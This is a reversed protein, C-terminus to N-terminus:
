HLSANSKETVIRGSGDVGLQITKFQYRKGMEWYMNHSRALITGLLFVASAVGLRPLNDSAFVPEKHIASNFVNLFIFAGSGVQFLKGNTIINNSFNKKPVASIEKIHFKMMGLQSTDFSYFGWNNFVRNIQVQNLWISDNQVKRVFGEIWQRNTFRFIIYSGSSWSQLTIEKKKLVLLDSQAPLELWIFFGLLLLFLRM